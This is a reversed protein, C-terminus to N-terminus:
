YGKGDFKKKMGTRQVVINQEAWYAEDPILQKMETDDGM